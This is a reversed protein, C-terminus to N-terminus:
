LRWQTKATDNLTLPLLGKKTCCDDLSIQGSLTVVLIPLLAITEMDVLLDLIGTICINAGGDVLSPNDVVDFVGHARSVKVLLDSDLELGCVRMLGVVRTISDRLLPQPQGGLMTFDCYTEDAMQFPFEFPTTPSAPRLLIGPDASSGPPILCEDDTVAVPRGKELPIRYEM